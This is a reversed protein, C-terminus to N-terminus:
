ALFNDSQTPAQSNNGDPACVHQDDTASLRAGIIYPLIIYVEM